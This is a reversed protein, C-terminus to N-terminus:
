RSQMEEREFNKSNDTKGSAKIKAIALLVGSIVFLICAEPSFSWLFFLAIFYWVIM